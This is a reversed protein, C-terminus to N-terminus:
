EIVAAEGVQDFFRQWAQRRSGGSDGVTLLHTFASLDAVGGDIDFMVVRESGSVEGVRAM